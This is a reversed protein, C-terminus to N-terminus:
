HLLTHKFRIDSIVEESDRLHKAEEFEKRMSERIIDQRYAHSVGRGKLSTRFGEREEEVVDVKKKIVM